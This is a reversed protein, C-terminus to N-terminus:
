RTQRRKQVTLTDVPLSLNGTGIRLQGTGRRREILCPASEVGARALETRARHIEVNLRMVDAYGLDRCLDDAHVWGHETEDLNQAAQDLVRARALALLMQTYTHDSRWCEKGASVAAVVVYEQDVSVSFSLRTGGLLAARQQEALSPLAATPTVGVPLILSWTGGGFSLRVGDSVERAEGAVEATWRGRMDRYINAITGDPAKLTLLQDECWALAMTELDRACPLPASDDQLTWEHTLNGFALRAGSRLTRRAGDAIRVGDVYTGNRSGLDRVQWGEENQWSLTAHSNSVWPESLRLDNEAARGVRTHALLRLSESLGATVLHAM